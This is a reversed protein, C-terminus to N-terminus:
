EGGMRLEGGVKWECEMESQNAKYPNVFHFLVNQDQLVYIDSHFSPPFSGVSIVDQNGAFFYQTQDM